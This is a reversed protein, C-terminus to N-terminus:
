TTGGRRARCTCCTVGDVRRNGQQLRRRGLLAGPTGGQKRNRRLMHVSYWRRARRMLAPEEEAASEEGGCWRSKRGAFGIAPTRAADHAAALAARLVINQLTECHCRSLSGASHRTTQKKSRAAPASSLRSSARAHLLLACQAHLLSVARADLQSASRAIVVCRLQKRGKWGRVV